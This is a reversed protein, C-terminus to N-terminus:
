EVLVFAWREGRTVLQTAGMGLRLELPIVLDYIAGVDDQRDTQATVEYSLLTSRLLQISVYHHDRAYLYLYLLSDLELDIALDSYPRPHTPPTLM